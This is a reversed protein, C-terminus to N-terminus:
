QGAVLVITPKKSDYCVSHQGALFVNCGYVDGTDDTFYYHYTEDCDFRLMYGYYTLAGQEILEYKKIATKEKVEATTNKWMTGVPWNVYCTFGDETKADVEGIGKTTDQTKKRGIEYNAGNKSTAKEWHFASRDFDPLQEISPAVTRSTEDDRPTTSLALPQDSM